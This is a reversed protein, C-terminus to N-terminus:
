TTKNLFELLGQPLTRSEEGHEQLSPKAGACRRGGEVSGHDSGFPGGPDEGGGGDEHRRSAARVVGVGRTIEAGRSAGADLAHAATTGGAHVTHAHDCAAVAHHAIGLDAVVAVGDVAVVAAGVTEGNGTPAAVADHLGVLGTVDARHLDLRRAASLRANAHSSLVPIIKGLVGARVWEPVM